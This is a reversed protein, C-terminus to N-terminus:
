KACERKLADLRVGGGGRGRPVDCLRGQQVGAFPM